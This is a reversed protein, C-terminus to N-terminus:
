IKRIDEIVLEDYAKPEILKVAETASTASVVRGARFTGELEHRYVYKVFYENDEAM